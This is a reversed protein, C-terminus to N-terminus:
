LTFGRLLVFCGVPQDCVSDCCLSPKPCWSVPAGKRCDRPQGQRDGWWTSITAADKRKDGQEEVKRAMTAGEGVHQAWSLALFLHVSSTPEPQYGLILM